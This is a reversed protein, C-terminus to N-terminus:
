GKGFIIITINNNQGYSHGCDDDDDSNNNNNDDDIVINYVWIIMLM